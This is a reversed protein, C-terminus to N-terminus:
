AAYKAVGIHHHGTLRCALHAEPAEKYYESEDSRKNDPTGSGAHDAIQLAVHFGGCAVEV